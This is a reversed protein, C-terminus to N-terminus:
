GVMGTVLGPLSRTEPGRTWLSTDPEVCGCRSGARWARADTAGVLAGDKDMVIRKATRPRQRSANARCRRTNKAIEDNRAADGSETPIAPDVGGQGHDARAATTTRALEACTPRLLRVGTGSYSAREAERPGAGARRARGATADAGRRAAGPMEIPTGAGGKAAPGGTTSYRWGCASGRHRVRGSRGVGHTCIKRTTCRKQDNM